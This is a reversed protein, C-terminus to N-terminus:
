AFLRMNHFQEMMETLPDPSAEYKQSRLAYLSKAHKLDSVRPSYTECLQLWELNGNIACWDMATLGWMDRSKLKAGNKLLFAFTDYSNCRAALILPPRLGSDATNVCVGLSVLEMVKDADGDSIAQHLGTLCGHLSSGVEHVVGCEEAIFEDCAGHQLMSHKREITFLCPLLWSCQGAMHGLMHNFDASDLLLPDKELIMNFVQRALFSEKQVCYCFTDQLEDLSVCGPNNLYFNISFENNLQIAAKFTGYKNLVVAITLKAIRSVEQGFTVDIVRVLHHAVYDMRAHEQEDQRIPVQHLQQGKQRVEDLSVLDQLAVNKGQFGAQLLLVPWEPTFPRIQAFVKSFIKPVYKKLKSYTAPVCGPSINLCYLSKLKQGKKSYVEDILVRGLLLPWLGRGRVSGHTRNEYM